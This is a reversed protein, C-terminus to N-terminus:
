KAAERAANLWGDFKDRNAAIWADAHREAAEWGGEGKEKMKLNQASVDNVSVKIVEFLKAAAPNNKVFEKNAVVMQTNVEFGYNKGNPLKTDVGNPHASHPVELWVVDKGPVLVGSVWYPTWTYYLVPKGEKYRTITEAIIASYEGQNHTVTDKLKYAGMHHEIVRECGWGPVCGALDAKGDDNADFLKAIEPDQLQGVNTINYKEATKKDILYGQACGEIYAGTRSLKEDGGAKEFFAQHLPNWHDAMFTVGGDAISIHLAPYKANQVDKVDYGLEKLAKMVIITQFNEGDVNDQGPQVTVGKGPLNADAMAPAGLALASAVFTTAAVWKKFTQSLKM